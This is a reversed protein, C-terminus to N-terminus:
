NDAAAEGAKGRSFAKGPTENPDGTVFMQRLIDSTSPEVYAGGPTKTAAVGVPLVGSTVSGPGFLHIVVGSSPPKPDPRAYAAGSAALGVFVISLLRIKLNQEERGAQPVAPYGPAEKVGFGAPVLTKQKKKEFFFHKSQGKL